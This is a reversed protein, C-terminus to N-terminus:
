YYFEFYQAKDFLLSRVVSLNKYTSSNKSCGILRDSWVRRLKECNETFSRGLRARESEDLEKGMEELRGEREKLLVIEELEFLQQMTLFKEFGESTSSFNLLDPISEYLRQRTSNIHILARKYEGRRVDLVSTWFERSTSEKDVRELAGECKGWEQLHAYAEVALLALDPTADRAPLQEFEAV